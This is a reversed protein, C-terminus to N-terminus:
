LLKMNKLIFGFDNKIIQFNEEKSEFVLEYATGKHVFMIERIIKLDSPNKYTMSMAPVTGLTLTEKEKVFVAGPLYSLLSHRRKEYAEEATSVTYWSKKLTVHSDYYTTHNISISYKGANVGWQSPVAFEIGRELDTLNMSSTISSLATDEQAMVHNTIAFLFVAFMFLVLSYKMIKKM